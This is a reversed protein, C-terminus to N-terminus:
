NRLEGVLMLTEKAALQEAQKKSNGKGKGYSINNINALIEYHWTGNNDREERLVEFDLSIHKKQCWILLVSKFDIKEEMLKTLNLHYRFVFNIISQKVATYGGDLYIAGVIAELCNGELGAINMTRKKNFRLYNRIGMAGGIESLTNRSVIKSKIQTLSGEEYDGFKLFLYEAVVSDLIADGLFELRENPIISYDEQAQLFSKHTLAEVFYNVNLPRYGFSKIIFKKIELEDSGLKSRNGKLFKFIM